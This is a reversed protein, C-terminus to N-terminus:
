RFFSKGYNKKKNLHRNKTDVRFIMGNRQPLRGVHLAENLKKRLREQGQKLILNLKETIKSSQNNNGRGRILLLGITAEYSVSYFNNSSLSRTGLLLIEVM